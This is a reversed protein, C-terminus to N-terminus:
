KIVMYPIYDSINFNLNQVFNMCFITLNVLIACIYTHWDLYGDRILILLM